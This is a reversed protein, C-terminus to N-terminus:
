QCVPNKPAHVYRARQMLNNTVVLYPNASIRGHYGTNDNQVGNQSNVGNLQGTLNNIQENDSESDPLREPKELSDDEASPISHHKSYDVAVDTAQSLTQALFEGVSVGREQSLKTLEMEVVEYEAAILKSQGAVNQPGGPYSDDFLAQVWAPHEKALQLMDPNAMLTSNILEAYQNLFDQTSTQKLLLNIDSASFLAAWQALTSFEAPHATIYELNRQEANTLIPHGFADAVLVNASNASNNKIAAAIINMEQNDALLHSLGHTEQLQVSLGPLSADHLSAGGSSELSATIYTHQGAGSIREAAESAASPMETHSAPASLTHEMGICAIPNAHAALPFSLSAYRFVRIAAAIINAKSM